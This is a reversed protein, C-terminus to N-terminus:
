RSEVAGSAGAGYGAVEGAGSGSSVAATVTRGTERPSARTPDEAAVTGASAWFLRGLVFGTAVAGLVFWVPQRQAFEETDAILQNWRRDRLTRSLGEVQDAAREVYRAVIRNQSRHLPDVANRLAEALGWVRGAIERKQEELLSDAASRAADVFEAVVSGARDSPTTAHLPAAAGSPTVVGSSPPNTDAM